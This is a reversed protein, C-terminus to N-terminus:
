AVNSSSLWREVDRKEEQSVVHPAAYERYTLRSIHRALYAQLEARDAAPISADLTGQGVFLPKDTSIPEGPKMEPLLTGSMAVAGRITEPKHLFYSLSLGAGQSYGILYVGRAGYHRTAARVFLELLDMSGQHQAKDVRFEDGERTLSFWAYGGDTLTYWARPALYVFPFALELNVLTEIQTEDSGFGHLGILLVPSPESSTHVELYPFTESGVKFEPLAQKTQFLQRLRTLVSMM